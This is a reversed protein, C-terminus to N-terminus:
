EKGVLFRLFQENRDGDSGYLILWTRNIMYRVDSNHDVFLSTRNVFYWASVRVWSRSKRDIIYGAQSMENVM